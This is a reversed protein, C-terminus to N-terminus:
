FHPTVGCQKYQSENVKIIQIKHKLCAFVLKYSLSVLIQILTGYHYERVQCCCIQALILLNKLGMM